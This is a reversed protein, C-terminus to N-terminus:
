GLFNVLSLRSNRVTATYLSELQFQVTELKVATEYPDASLLEARTYELSTKAAANRTEAQEIRAEAAGTEAQLQVVQDRSNILDAGAKALLATKEEPRLGMAPDDALAALAMNLMADIFVPDDARLTFSVSDSEGVQMPALAQASGGFFNTGFGAPDSFWDEAAQKMDSVSSQAALLPKLEALLDDASGLARDGTAVGSFLSRDGVSTNLATIMVDLENRAQVSAQAHNTPQSSSGYAILSSSLDTISANVTELSLQTTSAFLSAEATAVSFGSLRALSRDIDALQSYDGKLREAPNAVQGTSLEQTLTEIQKRIQVSRGRLFLGQALDGISNLTM